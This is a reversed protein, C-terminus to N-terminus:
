VCKLSGVWYGPSLILVPSVFYVPWPLWIVVLSILLILSILFCLSSLNGGFVAIHTKKLLFLAIALLAECGEGGGGRGGPTFPYAVLDDDMTAMWLTPMVENANNKGKQRFWAIYKHCVIESLFKCSHIDVFELLWISRDLRHIIASFSILFYTM